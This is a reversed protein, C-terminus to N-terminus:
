FFSFIDFFSQRIINVFCAPSACHFHSHLFLPPFFLTSLLLFLAPSVIYVLSRSPSYSGTNLYLHNWRASSQVEWNYGGGHQKNCSSFHLILPFFVVCAYVCVCSVSCQLISIMNVTFRVAPAFGSAFTQM